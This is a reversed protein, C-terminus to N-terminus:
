LPLFIILLGSHCCKFIFKVTSGFVSFIQAKSHQEGSTLDPISTLTFDTFDIPDATQHVVLLDGFISEM